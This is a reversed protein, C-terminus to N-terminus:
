AGTLSFERLTPTLGRRKLEFFIEKAGRADVMADHADDGLERGCLIPLAEALKPWKYKGYNGPLKCLDTTAKMTCFHPIAPMAGGKYAYEIDMMRSDFDANHCIFLRSNKIMSSVVSLAALAPIGFKYCQDMTIGHVAQAGEGIEWGEPHILTCFETLHKGDDDCLIAALQCVRAQGDQKLEGKKAFGTTETDLITFM